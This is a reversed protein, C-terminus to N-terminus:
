TVMFTKAVPRSQARSTPHAVGSGDGVAVTRGALEEGAVEEFLSWVGPWSGDGTRRCMEFPVVRVTATTTLPWGTPIDGGPPASGFILTSARGGIGQFSSARDGDPRTRM